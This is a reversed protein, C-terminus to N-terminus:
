PLIDGLLPYSRDEKMNIRLM